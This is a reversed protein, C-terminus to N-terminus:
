QKEQHMTEQCMVVVQSVTFGNVPNYMSDGVHSKALFYVCKGFNVIRSSILKNQLFGVIFQNSMNM